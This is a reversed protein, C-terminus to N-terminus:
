KRSQLHIPAEGKLAEKYSEKKMGTKAVFEKAFEDLEVEKEETDEQRTTINLNTSATDRQGKVNAKPKVAAL